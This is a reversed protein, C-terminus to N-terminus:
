QPLTQRHTLAAMSGLSGLIVTSQQSPAVSFLSDPLAKHELSKLRLNETRELKRTKNMSYIKSERELEMGSELAKRFGKVTSENTFAGQYGKLTSSISRAFKKWKPLELFCTKEEYSTLETKKGAEKRTSWNILVNKCSAPARDKRKKKQTELSVNVFRRKEEDKLSKGDRELLLVPSVPVCNKNKNCQYLSKGRGPYILSKVLRRKKKDYFDRRFKGESWYTTIEYKRSGKLEQKIVVGKGFLPTSLLAFLLLGWVVKM